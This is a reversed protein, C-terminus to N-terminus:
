PWWGGVKIISITIEEALPKHGTEPLTSCTLTYLAPIMEFIERRHLKAARHIIKKICEKKFNQSFTSQNNLLDLINNIVIKRDYELYAEADDIMENILRIKSEESIYFSLKSIVQTYHHKQRFSLAIELAQSLLDSPLYPVLATLASARSDENRMNQAIEFVERLAVQRSRKPLHPLLARLAWGRFEELDVSQAAEFAKNLAVQRLPRPLYPLLATLAGARFYLDQISEATEFAKDLVAQRSPEPLHPVLATLGKACSSVHQINQAIELAQSLLKPPLHPILATLVNGRSIDDQISQVIRLAQSPLDSAVHPVLAILVEERSAVHHISQAAELAKQLAVQSLPEPLHSILAILAKARSSEFRISQAAELAKRLAGQRLSETALHPALASLAKARFEEDQINEAMGLAPSLLEPILHPALVILTEARFVEDQFNQVAELAKQLAVDRLPEPLHPVLAILANARSDESQISQAIELAQRLLEPHLHPGFAAFVTTQSDEDQISQTAELAKHLAVQRLPKPLHPALTTLEDARSDKSQLSQAIDLAPSLLEPTLHPMLATLADARSNESQIEQVAELAKHLAEGRLARPLHPVLAILAAARSDESQINQAIKLAKRLLTSPLHSVLATLVQTRSHDFPISQAAELAKHLAVQRLPKPLYPILATLAEARYETHISNQAIELAQDFLEPHLHPALAILMKSPHHAIQVSQATEFARHLTVERLPETLHPVLAALAEARSSDWRIGQIMELVKSVLEPPLHPALAILVKTQSDEPQIGQAIELAQSLLEPHLHPALATLMSARFVDFQMTQVVEIERQLATQRLPEPLRPILATLVKARSEEYEISQAIGLASSLLGPHLHPILATLVKARSIDDRISQVIELARNLLDSPLYPVLVTLADARTDVNKINQATELAQSLLDPPLHSALSSLLHRDIIEYLNKQDLLRELYTSDKTYLYLGMASHAHLLINQDELNRQALEWTQTPILLTYDRSKTSDQNIDFTSLSVLIPGWLPLWSGMSLVLEFGEKLQDESLQESLKKIKKLGTNLDSHQEILILGQRVSLIGEKVALALLDDSINGSQSAISSFCLACLLQIDFADREKAIDWARGLDNLFGAYTGDLELWAQAWPQCVLGYFSEAPSEVEQLHGTYYQLVYSPVKKPSLKMSQLAQLRSKGYAIFHNRLEEIETEALRDIFYERLRPHSLVYGSNVGDGIVFRNVDRAVEELILASKFHDSAVALVDNNSLPGLAVACINLFAGVKEEKLPAKDGWLKQQEEFWLKFYGELGPKINQIDESEFLPAVEKKELLADVYLRILLPDGQSLYYLTEVIDFKVGLSDLPNGMHVLVDQVGKRTLLGLLVLSARNAGTWGLRNLWGKSGDDGALPRAAILVKLHEPANSPFVDLGLKWGAAEDLGDLVVLIPKGDPHPRRLFDAFLGRYQSVDSTQAIKENFLSGARAALASFAVSELNTEFRISIPFFIIHPADKRMALKTIWQCLLASKGRGAPAAILAYHPAHKNFFWDDLAQLDKERGGFPVPQDDTGLYYELFNKVNTDYRTLLEGYGQIINTIVQANHGIAIYNANSINGIKISSDPIEPTETAM